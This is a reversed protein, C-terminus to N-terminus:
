MLLINYIILQWYIQVSKKHLFFSSFFYRKFDILIFESNYSDYDVISMEKDKILKEPWVTSYPIGSICFNFDSIILIIAPTSEISKNRVKKDLIYIIYLSLGLFFITKNVVCLIIILLIEDRSYYIIIISLSTHLMLNM